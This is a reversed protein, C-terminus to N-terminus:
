SPDVSTRAEPTQALIGVTARRAREVATALRDDPAAAHTTGIGPMVVAALFLLLLKWRCERRPQQNLRVM